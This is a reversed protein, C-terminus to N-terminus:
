YLTGKKKRGYRDWSNRTRLYNIMRKKEKGQRKKRKKDKGKREKGKRKGRMGRGKRKRKLFKGESGNGDRRKGRGGRGEM